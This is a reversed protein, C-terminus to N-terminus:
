GGPGPAVSRQALIAVPQALITVPTADSAHEVDTASGALGVTLRSAEGLRPVSKAGVEGRSHEFAGSSLSTPALSSPTTLPSDGRLTIRMAEQDPVM